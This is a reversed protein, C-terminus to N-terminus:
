FRLGGFAPTRAAFLRRCREDEDLEVAFMFTGLPEGYRTTWGSVVETRGDRIGPGLHHVQGDPDRQALYGHFEAFGGAFEHADGDSSWLISFTFGSSLMAVVEDIAGADLREFYVPLFTPASV